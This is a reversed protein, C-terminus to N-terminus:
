FNSKDEGVQITKTIHYIYAERHACTYMYIHARTYAHPHCFTMNSTKGNSKTREKRRRREGEREERGEREREGEGKRKPSLTQLHVQLENM